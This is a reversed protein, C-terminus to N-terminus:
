SPRDGSQPAHAFASARSLVNASVFLRRARFAAPSEMLLLQPWRGGTRAFWPEDAVRVSERSWEPPRVGM